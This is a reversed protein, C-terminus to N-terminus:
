THSIFSPKMCLLVTISPASKRKLHLAFPTTVSTEQSLSRLHGRWVSFGYRVSVQCMCVYVCVCSFVCVCVCVYLSLCVHVCVCVSGWVSLESILLPDRSETM